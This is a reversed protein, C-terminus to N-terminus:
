EDVFFNLPPHPLIVSRIDPQCGAARLFWKRLESTSTRAPRPSTMRVSFDALALCSPPDLAKYIGPCVVTLDEFPRAEEINKLTEELNKLEADVKGKTEQANKIAETEFTEITKIQKEVDYTAPKFSSYSKQIEEVVAQNKLIARYHAFDIKQPADSLANVKRRADENRKKFSQLSAVTQGKLGLSSTIQAWNM